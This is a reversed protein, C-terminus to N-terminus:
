AASSLTEGFDPNTFFAEFAQYDADSLAGRLFDAIRTDQHSTASHAVARMQRAILNVTPDIETYSFLVRALGGGTLTFGHMEPLRLFQRLMEIILIPDSIRHSDIMEGYVEEFFATIIETKFLEAQERESMLRHNEQLRERAIDVVSELQAPMAELLAERGEDHEDAFVVLESEGPTVGVYEEVDDGEQPDVLHLM